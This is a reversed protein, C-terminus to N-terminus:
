FELFGMSFSIHSSFMRIRDRWASDRLSCFASLDPLKKKLRNLGQVERGDNLRHVSGAIYNRVFEGEPTPGHNKLKTRMAGREEAKAMYKVFDM